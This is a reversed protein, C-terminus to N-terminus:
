GCKATRFYKTCPAEPYVRRMCPQNRDDFISGGNGIGQQYSPWQLGVNFVALVLIPISDFSVLMLDCTKSVHIHHYQPTSQTGILSFFDAKEFYYIHLECILSTPWDFKITTSRPNKESVPVNKMAPELPSNSKRALPRLVREKAKQKWVWKWWLLLFDVVFDSIRPKRRYKLIWAKGVLRWNSVDGKLRLCSDPVGWTNIMGRIFLLM